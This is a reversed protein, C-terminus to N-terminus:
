GEQERGGGGEGGGLGSEGAPPGNEGGAAGCQQQRRGRRPKAARQQRARWQDPSSEDTIRQIQPVPRQQYKEADDLERRQGQQLAPQDDSQAKCKRPQCISKDFDRNSEATRAGSLIGLRHQPMTTTATAPPT